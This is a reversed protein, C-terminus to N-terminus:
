HTLQKKGGSAQEMAKLTDKAFTESVLVTLMMVGWAHAEDKSEADKGAAKEAQRVRFCIAAGANHRMDQLLRRLSSLEM